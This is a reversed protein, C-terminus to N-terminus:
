AFNEYIWGSTKILNALVIYPYKDWKDALKNKGKVGVKRILVHDGIDVTSECVKSDYQEKQHSASKKQKVPLLKILLTCGSKLSQQM